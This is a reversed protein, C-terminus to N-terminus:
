SLPCEVQLAGIFFRNTAFLLMCLVSSVLWLVLLPRQADWLEAVARDLLQITGQWGAGPMRLPSGDSLCVPTGTAITPWPSLAAEIIINPAQPAPAPPTFEAPESLATHSDRIGSLTCGIAQQQQAATPVLARALAM